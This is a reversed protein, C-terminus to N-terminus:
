SVGRSGRPQNKKNLSNKRLDDPPVIQERKRLVIIQHFSWHRALPQGLRELGRLLPECATPLLQRFNLGGSFLYRLANLTYGIHVLELQVGYLQEFRARDRQFVIHALAQNAGSLPGGYAPQTPDVAAATGPVAILALLGFVLALRKRQM